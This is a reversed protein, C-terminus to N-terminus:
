GVLPPTMCRSAVKTLLRPLLLSQSILRLESDLSQLAKQGEVLPLKRVWCVFHEVLGNADVDVFLPHLVFACRDEYRVGHLLRLVRHTGRDM